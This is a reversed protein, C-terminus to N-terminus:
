DLITLIIDDDGASSQYGNLEIVEDLGFSGVVVAWANNPYDLDYDTDFYYPNDWPDTPLSNLYPGNWNLFLGDNQMIGAAPSSLDDVENNAPCGTPIDTCIINAEQHNPWEGTDLALIEIANIIARIDTKADAIHAKERAGRLGVIGIGTLIAIVAIVVLLEVLTFGKKNM